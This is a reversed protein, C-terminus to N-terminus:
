HWVQPQVGRQGWNVLIGPAHGAMVTAGGIGNRLAARLALPVFEAGNAVAGLANLVIDLPKKRLSTHSAHIEIGGTATGCVFANDAVELATKGVDEYASLHYGFTEVKFMDTQDADEVGVLHEVLGVETSM